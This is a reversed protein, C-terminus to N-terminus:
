MVGPMRCWRNHHEGASVRSGTSLNHFPRPYGGHIVATSLRRPIRIVAQERHLRGHIASFCSIAQQLTKRPAQPPLLLAKVAPFPCWGPAVGPVRSSGPSRGRARTGPGPPRRAASPSSWAVPWGPRRPRARGRWRMCPPATGSEARGSRRAPAPVGAVASIGRHDPTWGPVPSTGWRDAGPRCWARAPGAPTRARMVPHRATALLSAEAPWHGPMPRQRPPSRSSLGTAPPSRRRGSRCTTTSACAPPGAGAAASGPCRSRISSAGGALDRHAHCCAPAQPRPGGAQLTHPSCGTGAM